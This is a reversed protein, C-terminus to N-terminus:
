MSNLVIIVLLDIQRWLGVNKAITLIIGKCLLDSLKNESNEDTTNRILIISESGQSKLHM